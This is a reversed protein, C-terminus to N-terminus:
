VPLKDAFQRELGRSRAGSVAGGLLFGRIMDPIRLLIVTDGDASARSFVGTAVKVFGREAACDSILKRLARKDM